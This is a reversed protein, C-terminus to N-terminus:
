KLSAAFETILKAHEETAFIGRVETTNDIRRQRYAKARRADNEKRRCEACLQNYESDPTANVDWGKHGCNSCKDSVQSVEKVLTGPM